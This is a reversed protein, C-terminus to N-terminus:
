LGLEYNVKIIVDDYIKETGMTSMIIAVYDGIHFDEIGYFSWEMGMCDVFIVMDHKYDLEVIKGSKAYMEFCPIEIAEIKELEKEECTKKTVIATTFIATALTVIALFIVIAKKM